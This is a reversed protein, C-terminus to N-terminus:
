SSTTVSTLDTPDYIKQLIEHLYRPDDFHRLYSNSPDETGVNNGGLVNFKVQLRISKRFMDTNRTDELAEVFGLM